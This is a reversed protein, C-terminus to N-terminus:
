CSLMGTPHATVTPFPTDARPTDAWPPTQGPADAWPHRGLPHRGLPHRGLLHRGLPHTQGPTHRDLPTNGLMCQPLCGGRHISHRVPAQSFIVKSCSQQLCYFYSVKCTCGSSVDFFESLQSRLFLKQGGTLEVEMPWRPILLVVNM